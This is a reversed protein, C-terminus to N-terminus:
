FTPEKSRALHPYDLEASWCQQSKSIGTQLHYQGGRWFVNKGFVLRTDALRLPLNAFLALAAATNRQAHRSKPCELDSAQKLLQSAQNVIAVPSYGTNQLKEYKRKPAKRAEEEYIRLLEALLDLTEQDAAVYRACKQM